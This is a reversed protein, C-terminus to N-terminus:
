LEVRPPGYSDCNLIDVQSATVNIRGLEEARGNTLSNFGELSTVFGSEARDVALFPKSTVGYELTWCTVCGVSNSGTIADIAIVPTHIDGQVLWEQHGEDLGGKERWCSVENLSRSPKDYITNFTVPSHILHPFHLPLSTSHYFRVLYRSLNGITM